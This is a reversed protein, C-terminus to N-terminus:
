GERVNALVTNIHRSRAPNAAEGIFRSLFVGDIGYQRMWKMHLLVPVKRFASYLRAASGDPLKLGPVERLDEPNYEAVDPWMDVVFRGGGPRELGQGWHGFGFDTGDGPTNFWGQYGCLVKGDLTMADVDTRTPGSYPLLWPEDDPAEAAPAQGTLLGVLALTTAISTLSSRM